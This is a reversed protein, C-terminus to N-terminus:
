SVNISHLSLPSTSKIRDVPPVPKPGLSRVGSAVFSIRSISTGPIDSIMLICVKECVGKATSLLDTEPTLDPQKITLKGPLGEPTSCHIFIM